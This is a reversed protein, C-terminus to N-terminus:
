VCLGSGRMRFVPKGLSDRFYYGFVCLHKSRLFRIPVRYGAVRLVNKPYKEREIGSTIRIKLGWEWKPARLGIWVTYM